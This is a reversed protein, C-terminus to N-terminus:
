QGGIGATDQAHYELRLVVLREGWDDFCLYNDTGSIFRPLTLRIDAPNERMALADDHNGYRGLHMVLNGNTDLIGISHRYGEPVYCRKYWDLHFRSSPCTCGSASVPTPGAYMWSAGEVWTAPSKLGTGEWDVPRAPPPEVPVAANQLLFRARQPPVKVLTGIFPNRNGRDLLVDTGINGGRGALFRGGNFNLVRLISFYLSGDEDVQVGAMVGGANVALKERLEGGRDFTWITAGSLAAGPSRGIFFASEGRKEQEEISRLFAAYTGQEEPGQGMGRALRERRGSLAFSRAAEDMKPVVYINCQEAIDGRMNVGFGDQFYKAGPQDKVPLAGAWNKRHEASTPVGYDYPVEVLEFVRNAPLANRGKGDYPVVKDPDLRGVGPM